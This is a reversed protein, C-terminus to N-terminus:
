KCNITPTDVSWTEIKSIIPQHSVLRYTKLKHNTPVRVVALSDLKKGELPQHRVLWTTKTETPSVGVSLIM